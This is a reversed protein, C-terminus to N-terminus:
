DEIEWNNEILDTNDSLIKVESNENTGISVDLYIDDFFSEAEKRNKAKITVEITVSMSGTFEPM